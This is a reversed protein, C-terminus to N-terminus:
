VEFGHTTIVGTIGTGTTYKLVNDAIASAWPEGDFPVQTVGTPLTGDMVLNAAANTADFLTFTGTVTLTIVIKTIYFKKGATPTWVVTGTGSAAIAVSKTVRTQARGGRTVFLPNAASYAAGTDDKLKATVTGSVPQVTGGTPDNRVPNGATGLETGSVDRLNVMLGRAATMRLAGVQGDAPSSTTAKLEAGMTTISTTGEIFAAKDAASTGGLSAGGAVYVKLGGSAADVPAVTTGDTIKVPWPTAASGPTGQNGTVTGSVPITDIFASGTSLRVAVPTAAPADVTLSGANDTIPIAVGSADVKLNAATPNNVVVAAAPFKKIEVPVGFVADGVLLLEAAAGGVDVQVVQTKVGARDIDRITEGSGPTITTNNAV